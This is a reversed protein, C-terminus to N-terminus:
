IENEQGGLKEIEGLIGVSEKKEVLAFFKFTIATLFISNVFLALLYYLPMYITRIINSISLLNNSAKSPDNLSNMNFAFMILYLPIMFAYMIVMAIIFIVIILGFTAWWHDKVVEFGRSFADFVGKNEVTLAVFGLCLPISLYIGPILFLIYSITLTIGILFTWGLLPFFRSRTEQWVQGITIKGDESAMYLKFYGTIVGAYLVGSIILILYSVYLGTNHSYLAMPNSRDYILSKFASGILYGGVLQVPGVILLIYKFLQKFNQKIFAFTANIIEGFDRKQRFNIKQFPEM